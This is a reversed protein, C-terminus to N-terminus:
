SVKSRIVKAWHQICHLWDYESNLKAQLFHLDDGSNVPVRKLQFSDRKTHVTGIRTSVCCEFGNKELLNELFRLFKENKEPFRFPYSFCTSGEGTKEEIVWKSKRIEHGVQVPELGCLQVHSCSHSGFKIGEKQLYRIEDWSLHKKGRLGSRGNDIFNTPLFVTAPFGYNKLVPFAHTYFDRYGDDFTLVVLKNSHQTNPTPHLSSDLANNSSEPIASQPNCITSHHSLEGRSEIIRVAESLSIVKYNNDHLFKMHEAFRKPSTNIWYYPHGKEPEDSISHYM